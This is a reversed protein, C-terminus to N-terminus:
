RPNSGAVPFPSGPQGDGGEGTDKTLSELRPDTFSTCLPLVSTSISFDLLIVQHINAELAKLLRSESRGSAFIRYADIRM